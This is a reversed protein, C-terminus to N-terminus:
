LPVPPLRLRAMFTDAHARVARPALKAFVSLVHVAEDIDKEELFERHLIDPTTDTFGANDSFDAERIAERIIRRVFKERDTMNDWGPVRDVPYANVEDFSYRDVCYRFTQGRLAYVQGGQYRVYQQNLHTWIKILPAHANIHMRTTKSDHANVICEIGNVRVIETKHHVIVKSHTTEPMFSQNSPSRFEVCNWGVRRMPWESYYGNNTGYVRAEALFQQNTKYQTGGFGM